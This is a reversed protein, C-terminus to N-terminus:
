KRLLFRNINAFAYVIDLERIMNKVGEKESAKAGQLAKEEIDKFHVLRERCIIAIDKIDKISNNKLTYYYMNRLIKESQHHESINDAVILMVTHSMFRPYWKEIYTNVILWQRNCTLMKDNKCVIGLENEALVINTYKKVTRITDERFMEPNNLVLKLPSDYVTAWEAIFLEHNRFYSSKSQFFKALIAPDKPVYHDWSIEKSSDIFIGITEPDDDATIINYPDKRIAGLGSYGNKRFTLWYTRPSVNSGIYDSLDVYLKKQHSLWSTEFAIYCVFKHYERHRYLEMLESTLKFDPILNKHVYILCECSIARNSLLAGTIIDNYLYLKKSDVILKILNKFHYDKSTNKLIMKINRINSKGTDSLDYKYGIVMSDTFADDGNTRTSAMLNLTALLIGTCAYKQPGHPGTYSVITPWLDEMTKILPETIM